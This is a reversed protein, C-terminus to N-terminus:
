ATGAALAKPLLHLGMWHAEDYLEQTPPLAHAEASWLGFERAQRDLLRRLAFVLGCTPTDTLARRLLDHDIVHDWAEIYASKLREILRQPSRVRFKLDFFLRSVALTPPALYSDEVDVFWVHGRDHFLNIGVFDAPTWTWPLDHHMFQEGTHRLRAEVRALREGPWEHRYPGHALLDMVRGVVADHERAGFGRRALLELTEPSQLAKRQATALLTMTRMWVEDDIVGISLDTGPVGPTLWWHRTEDFARTTPFHQPMLSYLARALQAEQAIRRPGGKFYLTEKTTPFAMVADFRGMRHHIPEGTLQAGNAEAHERVWDTVTRLQEPSDFPAVAHSFRDVCTRLALEQVPLLARRSSLLSEIPAWTLRDSGTTGEALPAVERAERAEAAVYRHATGPAASSTDLGAVDVPAEHIPAVDVGLRALYPKIVAAQQTHGRFRVYPLLWAADPRAVLVHTRNPDIVVLHYHEEHPEYSVALSSM